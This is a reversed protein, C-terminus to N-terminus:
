SVNTRRGYGVFGLLASGFLWVAAPVPVASVAMGSVYFEENNYAVRLIDNPGMLFSGIGNPGDALGTMVSYSVLGQSLVGITVMDSGDFGGDHNNNFWINEVLVSETFTFDLYEGVTVNDDSSPSCSNGGSGTNAGSPAGVADKCVGLGATGWDLYAFQALDPPGGVTNPLDNTAHGTVSFGFYNLDPHDTASLSSWSSEGLGGAKETLDIFDFTVAGAQSSFLLTLLAALPVIRTKM